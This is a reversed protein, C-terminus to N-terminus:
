GLNSIITEIKPMLENPHKISSTALDSLEKPCPSVAIKALLGKITFMPIDNYDNGAVITKDLPIQLVEALQVVGSGKTIEKPGIDYFYDNSSFNITPPLLPKQAGEKLRIRLKGFKTQSMLKNFKDFDTIINGILSKFGSNIYEMTKEDKAFFLYKNLPNNELPCIAMYLIDQTNIHKFADRVYESTLTHAM